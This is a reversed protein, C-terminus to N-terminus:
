RQLVGRVTTVAQGSIIIRDNEIKLKLIGTRESLQIANLEDKELKDMWYPGLCCHASGCVPDEDVGMAPFFARSVFDYDDSDSLSTVIVGRTNVKKLESFNPKLNRVTEEDAVEVIYDMRNKGVFKFKVGLGEVLEIPPLCESAVELPFNLHIWNDDKQARLDGSKTFFIIESDGSIHEEWLIHASALTAHGCLDVEAAPTFWRLRYGENEKYLFATESLNMENAVQQMWLDTQMSDLICVAAPNGRFAVSTFADVIYINM